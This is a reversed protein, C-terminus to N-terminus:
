ATTGVVCGQQLRRQRLRRRGKDDRPPRQLRALVEAIHSFPGHQPRLLCHLSNDHAQNPEPEGVGRENLKPIGGHRITLHVTVWAAVPMFLAAQLASTLPLVSDEARQVVRGYM